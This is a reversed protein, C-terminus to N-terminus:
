SLSAFVLMRQPQIRYMGARKVGWLIRNVRETPAADPVRWNMRASDAAASRAKGSLASLPPNMEFLDQKPIVAEYPKLDPKETFSQRMDHAILDFISMTPLGLILEITKLM